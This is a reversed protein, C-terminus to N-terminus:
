YLPRNEVWNAFRANRKRDISWRTESPRCFSMGLHARSHQPAGSIDSRGRKAYHEPYTSMRLLNLCHLQHFVELGVRYGTEGTAPDTVQLSDAPKQLRAFNDLSVMQDPVPPGNPGLLSPAAQKHLLLFSVPFPFSHDPWASVTPLRWGHETLQMALALTSPRTSLRRWPSSRSPMSSWTCLRPQPEGTLITKTKNQRVAGCEM